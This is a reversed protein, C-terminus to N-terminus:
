APRVSVAGTLAPNPQAFGNLIAYCLRLCAQGSEDHIYQHSFIDHVVFGGQSLFLMQEYDYARKHSSVGVHFRETQVRMAIKPERDEISFDLVSGGPLHRGGQESKQYYWGMGEPGILKTLAWYPYLEDISAFEVGPFMEPVIKGLLIPKRQLGLGKPGQPTITPRPPRPIKARKGIDIIVSPIGPIKGSLDV